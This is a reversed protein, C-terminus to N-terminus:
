VKKKRQIALKTKSTSSGDKTMAETTSNDTPCGSKLNKKKVSNAENRAALGTLSSAPKNEVSTPLLQVSGERNLDKPPPVRLANM